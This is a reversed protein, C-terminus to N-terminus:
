VKETYRQTLTDQRAPAELVRDNEMLPLENESHQARLPEGAPRKMMDNSYPLGYFSDFGHRHARFPAESGLHWKGICETAYGLPKLLEALTIEEPPLGTKEDPFLVNPVGARIPYRGTLLSARSPSCFPAGSYFSTFRMGERAMRDLHPTRITQSGYCSLDGYGLDDALIIIFNPKRGAM